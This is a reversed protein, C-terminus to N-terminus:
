IWVMAMETTQLQHAGMIRRITMFMAKERMRGLSQGTTSSREREMAEGSGNNGIITAGAQNVVYIEEDATIAHRSGSIIGYNDIQVGTKDGVDIGDHAKPDGSCTGVCKTNVPGTSIITGYNIISMNHSPRIADDGESKILASTNSVSGNIITNGVTANSNRFDLAQGSDATSGQKIITGQNNIIITATSDAIKVTDDGV